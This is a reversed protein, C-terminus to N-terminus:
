VNLGGADGLSTIIGLRSLDSQTLQSTASNARSRFERGDLISEADDDVELQLAEDEPTKETIDVPAIAFRSEPIARYPSSTPTAQQGSLWVFRLTRKWGM